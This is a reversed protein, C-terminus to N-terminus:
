GLLGGSGRLVLVAGSAATLAALITAASADVLARARALVPLRRSGAFMRAALIAALPLVYIANFTVLLGFQAGIAEGSGAIATIAGFYPFATPLDVATVVAGLVFASRPGLREVRRSLGAGRGDRRRFLVLAVGLMVAGGAISATHFGHSNSSAIVPELLQRSALLLLVGGLAYVGFVGATFGALRPRPHDSSALYLAVGITVPNVADALGLSIVLLLVEPV